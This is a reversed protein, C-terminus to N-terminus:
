VSDLSEALTELLRRNEAARGITIRVYEPMGYPALPRVIVGRAELRRFVEGGDGVRSLVFNASGGFTEFGM